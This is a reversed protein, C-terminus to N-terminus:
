PFIALQNAPAAEQPGRCHGNRIFAIRVFSQYLLGFSSGSKNPDDTILTFQPKRKSGESGDDHLNTATSPPLFGRPWKFIMRCKCATIDSETLYRCNSCASSSRFEPRDPLQRNRCKESDERQLEGRQRVRGRIDCLLQVQRVVYLLMIGRRM